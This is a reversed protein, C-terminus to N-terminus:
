VLYSPEYYHCTEVQRTLPIQDECVGFYNEKEKFYPCMRVM